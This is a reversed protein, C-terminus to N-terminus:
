QMGWFDFLPDFPGAIQDGPISSDGLAALALVAVARAIRSKNLM